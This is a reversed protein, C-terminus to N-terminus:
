YIVLAGDLSFISCSEEPDTAKVFAAGARLGMWVAGTPLRFPMTFAQFSEM